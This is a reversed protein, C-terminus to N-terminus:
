TKLVIAKGGDPPPVGTRAVHIVAAIQLSAIIAIIITIIHALTTCHITTNNNTICHINYALICAFALIFTINFAIRYPTEMSLYTRASNSSAVAIVVTLLYAFFIILLIWPHWTEFM